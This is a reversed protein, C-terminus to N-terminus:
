SFDRKQKLYKRPYFFSRVFPIYTILKAVLCAFVIRYLIGVFTSLWNPLIKNLYHTIITWLNLDDLDILHFCFIALSAWGVFLLSKRIISLKNRILWHDLLISFKMLCLSALISGIIDVVINPTAMRDLLFLGLKSIYLWVFLFILYHYNKLKNLINYKKILYGSFFFIQAGMASNLSFPLTIKKSLFYGILTFTISVLFKNFISLKYHMLLNFILSGFFFALLFWIAGIFLSSSLGPFRVPGGSGFIGAILIQRFSGLRSYIIGNNPYFHIFITVLIEIIVTAIYPIILTLIGTKFRYKFSKLRFLYGSLIFFIPIHVIYIFRGLYGPWYEGLSHGFIVLFIALGRAIDIWGIRKRNNITETM